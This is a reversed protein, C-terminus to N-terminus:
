IKVLVLLKQSGLDWFPLFVTLVGVKLVLSATRSFSLCPDNFVEKSFM